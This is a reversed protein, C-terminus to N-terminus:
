RVTLKPAEESLPDFYDFFRKLERVGGDVEVRDFIWDAVFSSRRLLLNRLDEETGTLTVDAGALVRAHQQVVGRRIELTYGRDGDTLRFALTMRVDRTKEPDIRTVIKELISEIPLRALLEAARGLQYRDYDIGDELELAATLYFNRWNINMQRYGLARLADAKLSRAQRDDRNTRIVHTLLEAAWQYAGAELAENAAGVVADRGGMQEVYRRARELPPVPDLTTPDGNFWGLYGGYVNRVSHKV